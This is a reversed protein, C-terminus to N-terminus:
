EWASKLTGTGYSRGSDPREEPIPDRVSQTFRPDCAGVTRFTERARTLSLSGNPGGRVEDADHEDQGDDEWFCVHCIEFGGRQGLTLYGCCPCRYPGDEPGGVVNMFPELM